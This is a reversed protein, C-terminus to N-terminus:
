SDEKKPKVVKLKPKKRTRRAAAEKKKEEREAIAEEAFPIAEKILGDFIYKNSQQGYKKDFRSVRRILGGAEM